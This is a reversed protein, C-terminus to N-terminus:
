FSAADLPLMRVPMRLLCDVRVSAESEKKLEELRQNSGAKNMGAAPRKFGTKAQLQSPEANRVTVASFAPVTAAAVPTEVAQDVPGQGLLSSLRRRTLTAEEVNGDVDVNVRESMSRFGSVIQLVNLPAQQPAGAPHLKEFVDDVSKIEPFVDVLGQMAQAIEETECGRRWEGVDVTNDDSDGNFVDIYKMVRDSLHLLSTHLLDKRASRRKERARDVELEQPLAGVAGHEMAPVVAGAAASFVAVSADEAQVHQQPPASASRAPSRMRIQEM